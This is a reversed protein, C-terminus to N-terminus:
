GFIEATEEFAKKTKVLTEEIDAETHAASVFWNHYPHFFVGEQYARACFTTIRAFDDDGAFTMFPITAPGTLNIAMGVERAQNLLGQRLQDGVRFIHELARTKLMEEITALSAALPVASTFFSGTFFVQGASERLAEVGVCSSIPYGNGMAKSFCSLHPKLGLYEASGGMHLRFGARVDDIILLPGEDRCAGRLVDLFAEHAMEQDHFMEHRFPTIVVAAADDGRTDLLAKLGAADNYEFRLVAARDEPIIGATSPTCWSGIGHYAGEAMIITKRGTHARAVVVAYNVADSGNKGFVAWDATPILDVMREALDVWLPSPLNFLNGKAMQARVAAEVKPHNYGLIMPGYACMYDIYENGDVDRFRCGEAREIFCPSQGPVLLMPNQHGPIGGPVVKRAREFLAM